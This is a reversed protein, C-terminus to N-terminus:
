PLSHLFEDKFVSLIMRKHTNTLESAHKNPIYPFEIFTFNLKDWTEYRIPEIQDIFLCNLFTCTGFERWPRALILRNDKHMKSIECRNFVFGVQAKYTSPAALYGSQNFKLKCDNFLVNGSGFIFDINGTITSSIVYNVTPQHNLQDLPLIHEYRKILDLPLPGFFLTDQNGKIGCNIIKNNTGYVSLAIAQGIHQNSGADNEITLKELHCHSGTITFTSTRFTNFLLGDTHMKYSYDNYILITFEKSEGILTIYDNSIKLKERYIGNSLYIIHSVGPALADLIPQIKMTPNVHIVSM